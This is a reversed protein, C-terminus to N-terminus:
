YFLHLSDFTFVYMVLNDALLLVISIFFLCHAKKKVASDTFFPKVNAYMGRMVERFTPLPSDDEQEEKQPLFKEQVGGGIRTMQISKPPPSFLPSASAGIGKASPSKVQQAVM